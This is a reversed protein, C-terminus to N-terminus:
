AAPEAAVEAATTAVVEDETGQKPTPYPKESIEKILWKLPEKPQELILRRMYDQLMERIEYKEAYGCIEEIIQDEQTNIM